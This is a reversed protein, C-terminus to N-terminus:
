DSTMIDEQGDTLVIQDRNDELQGIYGANDHFLAGDNFEISLNAERLLENLRTLFDKIQSTHKQDPLYSSLIWDKKNNDHQQTILDKSLHTYKDLAAQGLIYGVQIFGSILILTLLIGFEYTAIRQRQSYLFYFTIIKWGFDAILYALFKKSKLPLKDSM